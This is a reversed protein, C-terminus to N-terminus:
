VVSAFPFAVEVKVVEVVAPVAVNVAETEQVASADCLTEAPVAESLAVNVM